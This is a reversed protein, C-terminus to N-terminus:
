IEDTCKNAIVYTNSHNDDLGIEKLIIEVYHKIAFLSLMSETRQKKCTIYANLTFRCDTIAQIDLIEKSLVLMIDSLSGM